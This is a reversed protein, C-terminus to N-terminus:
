FTSKCLYLRQNNINIATLFRQISCFECNILFMISVENYEHLLLFCPSNVACLDGKQFPQINWHNQVLSTCKSNEIRVFNTTINLYSFWKRREHTAFRWKYFCLLTTVCKQQWFEFTMMSVKFSSSINWFATFRLASIQMVVETYM